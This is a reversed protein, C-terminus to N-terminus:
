RSVRAVLRFLHRFSACALGLLAGVWSPVPGLGLWEGVWKGLLYGAVPCALFLIGATTGEALFSSRSSGM